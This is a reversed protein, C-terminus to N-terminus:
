ISFFGRMNMNLFSDSSKIGFFAKNLLCDYDVWKQNDERLDLMEIFGWGDNAFNYQYYDRAVMIVNNGDDCFKADPYYAHPHNMDPLKIWEDEYLNYYEVAKNEFGFGGGVAYVREKKNDYLQAHCQRSLSIDSCVTWEKNNIDYVEVSNGAGFGSSIFIKKNNDIFIPCFNTRETIMAPIIDNNSWKLYASNEDEPEICQLVQVNNCEDQTEGVIGGFIIIGFEPSTLLGCRDFIVENKSKPLEILTDTEILYAKITNGHPKDRRQDGEIKFAIHLIDKTIASQDPFLHNRLSLPLDNLLSLKYTSGYSNDFVSITNSSDIHLHDNSNSDLNFACLYSSQKSSTSNFITLYQYKSLDLKYFLLILQIIEQPIRLKDITEIHNRIFGSVAELFSM